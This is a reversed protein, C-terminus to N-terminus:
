LRKEIISNKKYINKLYIVYDEEEVFIVVFSKSDYPKNWLEQEPGGILVLSDSARAHYCRTIPLDCDGFFFFTM